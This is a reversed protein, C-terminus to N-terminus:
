QIRVAGLRIRYGRGRVTEIVEPCAPDCELKKRLRNVHVTLTSSMGLSDYGWVERILHEKTHVTDPHEILYVLLAREKKPLKLTEGGVTIEGTARSYTVRTM